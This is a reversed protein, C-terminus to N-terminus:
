AITDRDHPATTADAPRAVRFLDYWMISLASVATVAAACRLWGSDAFLRPRITFAGCVTAAVVAAPGGYRRCWVSGRAHKVLYTTWVAVAVPPLFEAVFIEVQPPMAWSRLLVLWAFLAISAVPAIRAFRRVWAGSRGLRPRTTLLWVGLVELAFALIYVWVLVLVFASLGQSSGPRFLSTLVNTAEDVPWPSLIEGAAAPIRRARGQAVDRGMVAVTVLVRLAVSALLVATARRMVARDLPLPRRAAAISDAIPLACEPCLGSCDLMRLDYECRACRLTGEMTHNVTDARGDASRRRRRRAQDRAPDQRYDDTHAM